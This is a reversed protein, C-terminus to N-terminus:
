SPQAARAAAVASRVQAVIAPADMGYVSRLYDQSGVVSSFGARLGIRHFVRPAAGAELLSEAVAGGLGGDVSHEEITVIGGTERAAAALAEIDLPKITHVSLLRCSIGLGSLEEVARLAVGLIGGTVAVTIDSGDRLV